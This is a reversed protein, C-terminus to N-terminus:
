ANGLLGNMGRGSTSQRSFLTVCSNGQQFGDHLIGDNKEFLFEYQLWVSSPHTAVVKDCWSFCLTELSVTLLLSLVKNESSHAHLVCTASRVSSYIKVSIELAIMM